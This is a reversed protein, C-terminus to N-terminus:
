LSGGVGRRSDDLSTSPTDVGVWEGPKTNTLHLKKFQGKNGSVTVELFKADPIIEGNFATVPFQYFCTKEDQRSKGTSIVVRVNKDTIKIMDVPHSGEAIDNVPDGDNKIATGLFITAFAICGFISITLTLLNLLGLAKFNVPEHCVLLIVSTMLGLLAIWAISQRSM